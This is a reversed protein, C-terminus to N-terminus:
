SDEGPLGRILILERKARTLAVYYVRAEEASPPGWIMKGSDTLEPRGNKGRRPRSKMFTDRLLWVRDRELGKSRHGSTLIIKSKDGAPNDEFLKDIRQYVDNVTSAEDALAWVCAAADRVNDTDRELKVLRAIEKDRWKDVNELMASVSGRTPGRDAKQVITRLRAGIDRGQIAVRRGDKVLKFFLSVLPANTRSIIFDGADPAMRDVEIERVIGEPAGPAAEFDPVIERALEVIKRACRFTVTLKLTKAKLKQTISEIVNDGAGRFHYIAQFQDGVGTIRGGKECAKLSLKVQSANLDQLEDIFVRSYQEMPMKLACPFFIMDDYDVMEQDELCADLAKGVVAVLDARALGSPDLAIEYDDILMDIAEPKFALNGKALTLLKKSAMRSGWLADDLSPKPEDDEPEWARWADTLLPLLIRRVKDGEKDVTPRRPLANSLQRLGYSHLTSVAVGGPVSGAKQALAVRDRMSDAIPKNFAVILADANRPLHALGAEITSSKGSGARAEVITNGDGSAIDEFIAEQQPSPKFTSM